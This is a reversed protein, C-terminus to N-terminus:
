EIKSLLLYGTQLRRKPTGTVLQKGKARAHTDLYREKTIKGVDEFPSGVNELCSIYLSISSCLAVM